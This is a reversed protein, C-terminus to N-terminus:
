KQTFAPSKKMHRYIATQKTGTYVVYFYMCRGCKHVVPELWADQSIAECICRHLSQKLWELCQSALYQAVSHSSIGIFKLTYYCMNTLVRFAKNSSKMTLNFSSCRVSAM